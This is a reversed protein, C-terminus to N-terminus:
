PLAETLTEPARLRGFWAGNPPMVCATSLGDADREMEADFGHGELAVVDCPRLPYRAPHASLNFICLVADDGHQRM